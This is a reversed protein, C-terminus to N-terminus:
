SGPLDFAEPRTERASARAQDGKRLFEGVAPNLKPITKELTRRVEEFRRVSEIKIHEVAIARSTVARQMDLQTQPKRALRFLNRGV